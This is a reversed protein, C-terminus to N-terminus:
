CPEQNDKEAGDLFGKRCEASLDDLAMGAFALLALKDKDSRFVKVMRPRGTTEDFKFAILSPTDKIPTPPEKSNM